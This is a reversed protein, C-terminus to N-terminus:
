RKGLQLDQVKQDGEAVSIALAGPSLRQLFAPDMWEGPEVDTTAALLYDGPPVKRFIYTGDTAVRAVLIRPSQPLWLGREAPFLIVQYDSAVVGATDQITGRVQSVRDTFTVVLGELDGNVELPDELVNRGAIVAGRPIWNYTVTSPVMPQLRFRGSSVGSITFTGDPQVEAASVGLSAENRGQVPTLGVRWGRLDAPAKAGDFQLRGSIRFGPRLELAVAVAADGTVVISTAAWLAADPGGGPGNARATVLYEGPPLSGFHFKGAADPRGTRFGELGRLGEDATSTMSIQVAAPLEGGPNSVTGEVRGTPVMLLQVDIGGREDGAALEIVSAQAASTANPFYIPTSGAPRGVTLAPSSAPEKLARDVDAESALLVDATNAFAGPRAASVMVVYQGPRLGFIRYTGRDDSRASGRSQLRRDGNVFGYQFAGIQADPVPQGTGDSITGTIVAGRPLRVTIDTLKTGETLVLSTGQGGPRRAGLAVDVFAEKTVLLYFRGSPVDRFAFRGSDGTVITRSYNIDANLLTVRARRLPRPKTEDTTVMGSVQATGTSPAAANDRVPTQAAQTLAIALMLGCALATM